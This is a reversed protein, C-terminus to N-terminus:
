VIVNTLAVKFGKRSNGLFSRDREKIDGPLQHLCSLGPDVPLLADPVKTM